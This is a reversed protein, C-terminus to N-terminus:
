LDSNESVLLRFFKMNKEIELFCKTKGRAKTNDQNPVPEWSKLDVSELLRYSLGEKAFWSVEVISGTQMIELASEEVPPKTVFARATQLHFGDGDSLAQDPIAESGSVVGGSSEPHQDVIGWIVELDPASGSTWTVAELRGLKSLNWSSDTFLLMESSGQGAELKNEFVWIYGKTETPIMGFPGNVSADFNYGAFGSNPQLMAGDIATWAMAWTTPDAADFSTDFWGLEASFGVPIESMGNSLFNHNETASASTGWKVTQGYLNATLVIFGFNIQAVVQIM